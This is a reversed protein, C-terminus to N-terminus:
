VFMDFVARERDSLPTFVFEQELGGSLARVAEEFEEM